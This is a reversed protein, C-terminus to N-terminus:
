DSTILNINAYIQNILVGYDFYRQGFLISGKIKLNTKNELKTSCNM